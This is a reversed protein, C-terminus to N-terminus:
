PTASRSWDPGDRAGGATRHSRDRGARPERRDGARAIQEATCRVESRHARRSRCISPVDGPHSIFDYVLIHDPRPIKEDVMIERDSVQTSACASLAALAVLSMRLRDLANM